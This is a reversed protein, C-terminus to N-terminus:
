KLVTASNFSALYTNNCLWVRVPKIWIIRDDDAINELEIKVRKKYDGALEAEQLNGWVRRVDSESYPNYVGLVSKSYCWERGALM